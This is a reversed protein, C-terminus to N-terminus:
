WRRVCRRGGVVTTHHRDGLREDAKEQEKTQSKEKAKGEFLDVRLATLHPWAPYATQAALAIPSWPTSSGVLATLFGLAIVFSRPVGRM